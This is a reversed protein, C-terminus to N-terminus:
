EYNRPAGCGLAAQTNILSYRWIEAFINLLAASPHPAGLDYNM